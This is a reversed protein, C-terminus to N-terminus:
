NYIHIVQFKGKVHVRFVGDQVFGLAEVLEDDSSFCIIDNEPDPLFCHFCQSIIYFHSIAVYNLIKFCQTGIISFM